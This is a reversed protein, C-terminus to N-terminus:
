GRFLAFAARAFPEIILIYLLCWVAVCYCLLGAVTLWPPHMDVGKKKYEVEYEFPAEPPREKRPRLNLIDAM